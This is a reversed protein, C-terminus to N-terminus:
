EECVWKCSNRKQFFGFFGILNFIIFFISRFIYSPSDVVFAQVLFCVNALVWFLYIHKPTFQHFANYITTYILFGFGIWSFIESILFSINDM